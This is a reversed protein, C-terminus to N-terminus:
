TTMFFETTKQPDIESLASTNWTWTLWQSHNDKNDHSCGKAQPLNKTWHNNKHSWSPERGKLLALIGCQSGGSPHLPQISVSRVTWFRGRSARGQHFVAYKSVGFLVGTVLWSPPLNFIQWTILSEKSGERGESTFLLILMLLLGAIHSTHMHSNVYTIGTHLHWVPRWREITLLQILYINWVYWSWGLGSSCLKCNPCSTIQFRCEPSNSVTLCLIFVSLWSWRTTYM